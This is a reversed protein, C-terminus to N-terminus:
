GGFNENGGDYPFPLELFPLPDGARGPLATVITTTTASMNFTASPAIPMPPQTCSTAEPTAIFAPTFAPTPTSRAPLIFRFLVFALCAVGVVATGGVAGAIVYARTHQLFHAKLKAIM